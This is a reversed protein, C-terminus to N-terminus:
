QSKNGNRNALMWKGEVPKKAGTKFHMQRKQKQKEQQPKSPQNTKRRMSTSVGKRNSPTTSCALLMQAMVRHVGTATGRSTVCLAQTDQSGTRGQSLVEETSTKCKHIQHLNKTNHSYLWAKDQTTFVTNDCTYATTLCQM